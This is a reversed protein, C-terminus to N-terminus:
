QQFLGDSNVSYNTIRAPGGTPAVITVSEQASYKAYKVRYALAYTTRSGGTGAFTNARFNIREYGELDGLRANIGALSEVWSERTRGGSFFDDAFYTMAQPFDRAKVAAYYGNAIEDAVGTDLPNCGLLLVALFMFASHLRLPKEAGKWRHPASPNSAEPNRTVRECGPTREATM